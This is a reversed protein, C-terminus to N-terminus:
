NERSLMTDKTTLYTSRLEKYAVEKKTLKPMGRLKLVGSRIVVM